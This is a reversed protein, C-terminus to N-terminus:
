CRPDAIRGVVQDVVLHATAQQKFALRDHEGELNATLPQQATAHEITKPISLPLQTSKAGRQHSRWTVPARLYSPLAPM